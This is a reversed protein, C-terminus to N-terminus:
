KKDSQKKVWSPDDPAPAREEAKPLAPWALHPETQYWYATTSIQLRNEPKSFETNYPGEIKGFGIKLRLSKQFTIADSMFFRYCCAGGYFPFYGTQPFISQSEPFAWSFGFADELGQFEVSPEAEGDLYFKENEDVPYGGPYGPKVKSGPIRITINWGIFKGPGKTELVPYERKGLLLSEQHWYAHFYGTTEPVNELTRYLVYSYAPMSGQLKNSVELKGDYVLEVRASKRFPMPFYANWGRRKNVLATTIDDRMGAPDCFFDVLPCEVSPSKEGDWYIRLLVDRNLVMACPLAFHVMTIMAPGKIEAVVVTKSSIFQRNLPTELWLGNQMETRGPLLTPLDDIRVQASANQAALMLLACLLSTRIM